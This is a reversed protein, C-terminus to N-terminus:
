AARGEGNPDQDELVDLLDKPDIELFRVLALLSLVSPWTEGREWDSIASQALGLYEAVDKQSVPPEIARRRQRLLSGLRQRYRAIDADVVSQGGPPVESAATGSPRNEPVPSM